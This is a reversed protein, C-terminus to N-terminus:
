KKKQMQKVVQEATNQIMAMIDKYLPLDVLQEKQFWKADVLGGSEKLNLPQHQARALFYVVKNRCPPEDKPHSTYSNQGIEKEIIVDLGLEDKATEVALSGLTASSDEVKNKCLTWKGFVDHLLAFYVDGECEAYVLVGIYKKIRKQVIAEKDEDDMESYVGGLVGNVFRGSNEGSFEKALEIAENIAVKGPVGLQKGFLIEFLGLRLVNRDLIAIKHIPWDPAAKKMIADLEKKKSFVGEILTKAFELHSDNGSVQDKSVRKYIEIVTNADTVENFDAEFLSQLVMSRILHRNIM